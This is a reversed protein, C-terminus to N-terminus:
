AAESGSGPRSNMSLYRGTVTAMSEQGDLTHLSPAREGSPALVWPRACSTSGPKM